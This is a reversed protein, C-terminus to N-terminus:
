DRTAQEAKACRRDIALGHVRRRTVEEVGSPHNRQAVAADEITAGLLQRDTTIGLALVDEAGGARSAHIPPGHEFVSGKVALEEVLVEKRVPLVYVERPPSLLSAPPTAIQRRRQSTM